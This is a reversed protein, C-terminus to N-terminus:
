QAVGPQPPAVEPAAPAAPANPDGPAAAPIDVPADKLYRYGVMSSSFLLKGASSMEGPAGSSPLSISTMEFTLLRPIRSIYSLFTAIQAYSGELELNVKTMEYFSVRKVEPDPEVKVIKVGALQAQKNVVTTLDVATVTSPMFDTIKEFQRALGQVEKEFRESEALAKETEGLQRNATELRTKAQAIQDNLLTGDDFMVFYYVAALLIGIGLVKIWELAALKALYPNM